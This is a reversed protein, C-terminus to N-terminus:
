DGHNLEKLRSSLMHEFETPLRANVPLYWGNDHGGPWKVADKETMLLPADALGALQAPSVAKHDALALQKDLIFGQENLTTFFRPPHGIGAMAHVRAGPAPPEGTASVPQLEGPALTMAYEGADGPGGNNIVADVSALRWKGERLPGMPLLRGNGFRRKGDVVVLEIDRALAYHQLGDDSIIIDAGLGALTAAAEARKPGVVVPCGTRKFILVPEDGAQEARTTNSLVLPYHDSNGGYGRSIVGPNYGQKRLWEVLWIVMPTKGNGGVTLNGVVMVPVPARYAAKLGHRFLCRRLGSVLGFLLSLPWLLWLWPAGRYWAQM